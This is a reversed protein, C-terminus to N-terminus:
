IPPISSVVSTRCNRSQTRWCNIFREAIAGGPGQVRSMGILYAGKCGSSAPQSSRMISCTPRYADNLFDPEIAEDVTQNCHHAFLFQDLPDTDLAKNGAEPRAGRASVASATLPMPGGTM